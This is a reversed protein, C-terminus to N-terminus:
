LLSLIVKPPDNMYVGWSLTVNGGVQTGLLGSVPPTALVARLLECAM